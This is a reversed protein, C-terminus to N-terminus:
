QEKEETRPVPEIVLGMRVRYVNGNECIVVAENAGDAAESIAQVSEGLSHNVHYVVVGIVDRRYEELEEESPDGM